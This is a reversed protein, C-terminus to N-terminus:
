VCTSLFSFSWGLSWNITLVQFASGTVYSVTCLTHIAKNAMNPEVYAHSCDNECKFFMLVFKRDRKVPTLKLALM